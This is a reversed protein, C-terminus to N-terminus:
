HYQCYFDTNVSINYTKIEGCRIKDRIIKDINNSQFDKYTEVISCRFFIEAIKIICSDLDDKVYDHFVFEQVGKPKIQDIFCSCDEQRIEAFDRVRITWVGTRIELSDRTDSDWRYRSPVEVSEHTSLSYERVSDDYQVDEVIYEVNVINSENILISKECIWSRHLLCERLAEKLESLCSLFTGDQKEIHEDIYEESHLLRKIHNYRWLSLDQENEKEFIYYPGMFFGIESDDFVADMEDKFSTHLLQERTQKEVEELISSEQVRLRKEVIDDGNKEKLEDIFNSVAPYGWGEENYRNEDEKYKLDIQHLQYHIQELDTSYQRHKENFMKDRNASLSEIRDSLEKLHAYRKEYRKENELLADNVKGIIGFYKDAWPKLEPDTENEKFPEFHGSEITIYNSM